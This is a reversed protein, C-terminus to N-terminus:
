KESLQENKFSASISAIEEASLKNVAVEFSKYKSIIEKKLAKMEEKMSRKEAEAKAIVEEVEASKELEDKIVKLESKIMFRHDKSIPCFRDELKSVRYFDRRMIVALLSLM